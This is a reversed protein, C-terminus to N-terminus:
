DSIILMSNGLRQGEAFRKLPSFVLGYLSLGLAFMIVLVATHVSLPRSELLTFLWYSIYGGIVIFSGHAINMYKM